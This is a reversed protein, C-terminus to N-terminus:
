ETEEEAGGSGQGQGPGRQGRAGAGGCPGALGAIFLCLVVHAHDSESISHILVPLTSRYSSLIHVQEPCIVDKVDLVVSESM